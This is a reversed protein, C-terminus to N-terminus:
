LHLLLTESTHSHKMMCVVGNKKSIPLGIDWTYLIVLEFCPCVILSGLRVVTQEAEPAIRSHFPFFPSVCVGM